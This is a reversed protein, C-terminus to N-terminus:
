NLKLQNIRNNIKQLETIEGTNKYLISLSTLSKLEYPDIENAKTLYFKAVYMIGSQKQKKDKLFSNLYLLGLAYNAEYNNPNIGIIYKYHEEATIINGLM